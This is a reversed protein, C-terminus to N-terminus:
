LTGHFLLLIPTLDQSEVILSHWEAPNNFTL